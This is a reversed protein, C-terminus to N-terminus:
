RVSNAAKGVPVGGAAYGLRDGSFTDGIEHPKPRHKLFGEASRDSSADEGAEQQVLRRGAAVAALRAKLCPSVFSIPLSSCGVGAEGFRPPLLEAGGCFCEVIAAAVSIRTERGVDGPRRECPEDAFEVPQPVEVRIVLPLGREEIEVVKEVM